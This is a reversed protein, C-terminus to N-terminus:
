GGGSRTRLDELGSLYRELWLRTGIESPFRFLMLLLVMGALVLGVRHGETLYAVCCLFGVGELLALGLVLSAQRLGLLRPLNEVVLRDEAALKRLSARLMARPLVFSLPVQVLFLAMAVLTLVKQNGQPMPAGGGPGRIEVLFVGITLFFLLGAILATVILRATAVHQRLTGEDLDRM